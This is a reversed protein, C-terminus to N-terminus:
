GVFEVGDAGRAWSAFPEEVASLGFPKLEVFSAISLHTFKNGGSDGQLEHATTYWSRFNHLPNARIFATFRWLRWTIGHLDIGFQWDRRV